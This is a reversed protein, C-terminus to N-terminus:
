LKIFRSVFVGNTKVFYIGSGLQSANISLQMADHVGSYVVRGLMDTITVQTILQQAAVHLVSGVPNPYCLVEDTAASAGPVGLHPDSVVHLNSVVSDYCGKGVSVLTATITDNGAPKTYTVSPVTTTAFTTGHNDWQLTYAGSSGTIGATLTVSSGTNASSIGSIAVVPPALTGVSMYLTNSTDMPNVVCYSNSTFVCQVSDGNAPTYTYTPASAGVTTGNVKWQYVPARGGRATGARFTVPMGYCLWNGSSATIRISPKDNGPFTVKRIRANANDNFLLNGCDDIKLAQPGSIKASDASGGDGGFGAVGTGAITNVYGAASIRRIRQNYADTFFIDGEENAVVWNPTIQAATAVVGEGNYTFSGNGAVTSIIGTAADVKRIRNNQCDAILLDGKSNAFIGAPNYLQAFTAPGGDGSYGGGTAATGAYLHIIGTLADIKRVKSFGQTVYLNQMRDFCIEIAYGLGANIALRGDGSDTLSGNGAITTIVGTTADVKRIRSGEIESIYLNGSTDVALGSPNNLEANTAQGGDGSYGAVGTGAFNSIVGTPSIKRIAHCFRESIYYNGYRDCPSVGSRCIGAATALGGNGTDHPYGVGAVTVITGVQCVASLSTLALAFFLFFRFM